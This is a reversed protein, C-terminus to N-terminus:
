RLDRSIQRLNWIVVPVQATNRGEVCELPAPEARLISGAGNLAYDAGSIGLGAGDTVPVLAM